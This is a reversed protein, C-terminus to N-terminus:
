IVCEYSIELFNIFFIDLTDVNIYLCHGSLRSGVYGIHNCKIDIKIFVVVAEEHIEYITRIGFHIM